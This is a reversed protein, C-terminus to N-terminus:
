HLHPHFLVKETEMDAKNGILMMDINDAALFVHSSTRLFSHFYDLCLSPNPTRMGHQEINRIWNRINQFSQEDTADYLLMIGM